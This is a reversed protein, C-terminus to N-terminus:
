SPQQGLTQYTRGLFLVEWKAITVYIRLTYVCGYRQAGASNFWYATIYLFKLSPWHIRGKKRVSPLIIKHEAEAHSNEPNGHEGVDHNPHYAGM